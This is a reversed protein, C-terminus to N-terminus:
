IDVDMDDFDFEDDLDQGLDELETNCEECVVLHPPNAHGCSPCKNEDSEDSIDAIDVDLDVGAAVEVDEILEDDEIEIVDDSVGPMVSVDIGPVGASTAHDVDSLVGNLDNLEKRLEDLVGSTQDRDSESQNLENKFDDNDHNFEGLKARIQLEDVQDSQESFITEKQSIQNTLEKAKKELSDRQENIKELVGQLKTSYDERIKQYVRINTEPKMTELNNLRGVLEERRDLLDLIKKELVEAM